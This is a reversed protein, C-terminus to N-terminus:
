SIKTKRSYLKQFKVIENRGFLLASFIQFFKYPLGLFDEHNKKNYRVMPFRDHGMPDPIPHLYSTRDTYFFRFYGM